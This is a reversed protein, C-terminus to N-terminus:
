LVIKRCSLSVVLAKKAVQAKAKSELCVHYILNNIVKFQHTSGNRSKIVENSTLKSRIDALDSCSNQLESFESPTIDFPEIEPVILPHTIKRSSSRTGVALINNPNSEDIITPNVNKVGPINGLLVSCFKIPARIANVFGEYFDCKLYCRVVPFSNVNGLYDSVQTVPCQSIDINPLLENTVIVTSCGTDRYITSM